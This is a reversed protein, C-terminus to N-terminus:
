QYINVAPAQQQPGPGFINPTVPRQQQQGQQSSNQTGAGQTSGAQGGKSQQSLPRPAWPSPTAKWPNSRLFQKPNTPQYQIGGPEERANNQIPRQGATKQGQNTKAPPTTWISPASQTSTQTQPQTQTQTQTPTQTSSSGALGDQEPNATEPKPASAGQNGASQQLNSLKDQLGQIYQDLEDVQGQGQSAIAASDTSTEDQANAINGFSAFLTIILVLGSLGDKFM